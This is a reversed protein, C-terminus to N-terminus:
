KSIDLVRADLAHNLLESWVAYYHLVHAALGVEERVIETAVGSFALWLGWLDGCEGDGSNAVM